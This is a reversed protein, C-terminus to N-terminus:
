YRLCRRRIRRTLPDELAPFDPPPQASDPIPFPEVKGVPLHMLPKPRWYIIGWDATKRLYKCVRKLAEYHVAAPHQAHCALKTIAYGIDLRGTVYAYILEGLVSRYSFQHKDVLELAEKSHKAPGITTDVVKAITDPLPELNRSASENPGGQNWGHATLMKQIYSKCSISVYPHRGVM